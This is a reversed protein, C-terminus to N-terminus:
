RHAGVSDFQHHRFSGRQLDCPFCDAGLPQRNEVLGLLVVLRSRVGRVLRNGFLRLAPADLGADGVSFRRCIRPSHPCPPQASLRPVSSGGLGACRHGLGTDPRHRAHGGNDESFCALRRASRRSLLHVFVVVVSGIRRSHVRVNLSNEGGACAATGVGPHVRGSRCLPPVILATIVVASFIVLAVALCAGAIRKFDDLPSAPTMHGPGTTM